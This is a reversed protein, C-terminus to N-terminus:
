AVNSDEPQESRRKEVTTSCASKSCEVKRKRPELENAFTDSYACM